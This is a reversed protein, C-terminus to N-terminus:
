MVGVVAADGGGLMPAALDDHLGFQGAHADGVLAGPGRVGLGAALHFAEVLRQLLEEAALGGRGGPGLQLGLQIAERGVVVLVPGVTGETPAGGLLDEVGPDLGAWGGVVGVAVISDTTIPDVLGAAHGQAVVAPEEVDTESPGMGAPPDEEQDDVQVTRTTVSSPSSM